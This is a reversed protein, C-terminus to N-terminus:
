KELLEQCEEAFTEIIAQDERSAIKSGYISQCHSIVLNSIDTANRITIKAVSSDIQICHKIYPILKQRWGTIISAWDITM